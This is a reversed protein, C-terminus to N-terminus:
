PSFGINIGKRFMHLPGTQHYKNITPGPHDMSDLMEHKMTVDHYRLLIVHQLSKVVMKCLHKPEM